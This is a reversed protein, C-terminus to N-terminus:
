YSCTKSTTEIGLAAFLLYSLPLVGIAIVVPLSLPGLAMYMLAMVPVCLILLTFGLLAFLAIRIALGYKLASTLEYCMASALLAFVSFGLVGLLSPMVVLAAAMVTLPYWIAHRPFRVPAPVNDKGRKLTRVIWLVALVLLVGAIVRAATVTMVVINGPFFPFYVGDGTAELLAFDLDAAMDAFATATLLYHYASDKDLNAFNDTPMHYHEVGGIVAFNMGRYGDKLFVTLDTDNPMIRYVAPTISTAIPHLDLRGFLRAMAYDNRSSEFMQLGGTNGRAEFNVVLEIRGRMEPHRSVFRNAGLLGLEEGDTFLFYMANARPKGSQERLAELLACVSVMDDAAGPCDPVSDYHAMFLVGNDTGQAELKVWINYLYLEDNENFVTYGLEELQELALKELEERTGPWFEMNQDILESFTCIESEVIPTLGMDTIEDVISQRVRANEDSGSSRHNQALREINSLMRSYAAFDASDPAPAGPPSLQAYGVAIGAITIILGTALALWYRRLFM